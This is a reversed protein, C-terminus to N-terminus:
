WVASKMTVKCQMVIAATVLERRVVQGKVPAGLQKQGIPPAVAQACRAPMWLQRAASRVQLYKMAADTVFSRSGHWLFKQQTHAAQQYCAAECKVLTYLGTRLALTRAARVV